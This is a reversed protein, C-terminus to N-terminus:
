PSPPPAAPHAHAHGRRAARRRLRNQEALNGHANRAHDPLYSAVKAETRCDKMCAIAKVDPKRM